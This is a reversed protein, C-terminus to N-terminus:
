RRRWELHAELGRRALLRLDVEGLELHDESILGAHHADNPQERQHEAVAPQDPRAKDSVLIQLGHQATVHGGEGGQAPHRALDEVVPHLGRHDTLVVPGVDDVVARQDVKGAMIPEVGLSAAGVAGLSLGFHLPREAVDALVEEKGAREAIEVVQVGLEGMPEAGYRVRAHMRRRLTDDVFGKSFFLRYELGQRQHGEAGHELKLPPDRMLAHDADAAIEVAHRVGGAFANDLHVTQGVLNADEFGVPQNGDMRHEFAAVLTAQSGAM